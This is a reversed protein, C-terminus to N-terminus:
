RRFELGLVGGHFFTGGDSEIGTQTFLNTAPIQDSALTVSEFWLGQYGLRIAWCPNIDYVATLGLEGVFAGNDADGLGPQNIVGNSLFTSHRAANYYIGGKAM